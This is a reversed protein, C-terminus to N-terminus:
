DPRYVSAASAALLWEADAGYGWAPYHIRGGREMTRIGPLVRCLGDYGSQDADGDGRPSKGPTEM